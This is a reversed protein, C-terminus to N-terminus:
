DGDDSRGADGDGYAARLAPAVEPPLPAPMEITRYGDLRVVEKGKADVVVVDFSGDTDREAHATLPQAATAEDSLVRVRGVHQPLALLEDRGAQWLGATQFCLEVLRPATVLPADAPDSNAPLDAALRATSGEGNRWASEVVQYAPGHFYFTYVQGADLAADAQALDGTYKEVNPADAETLRVSGRFHTTIVPAEQGPLSREATLACRALLDGGGSPDPGIVASVTLERVGDRFFKVPAAFEVEEVAAVRYGAPAALAAVEAFSEMGMVGPLVATGDIRHDNLFPQRVPDLTVKSTWGSHVSTTIDGIMPGRPTDAVTGVDLGGTADYEQAMMGLTGAVVVEGSFASDTLERRIWAVGAEPPLMEVGAAAMITPISGRTAMGIGGWATWDLALGRTGPTTNRLNSMAKCMLDNAASYDTQGQNGFRGAVSSFVATAKLEQGALAKRLAFWGDCKVDFVLDYERPEKEPLNRSIEVGAAHLLVDIRGSVDLVQSIAAGVGDVDTLDVSYYHATGGAAQVAEIADLAASRREIGAIEREIAVPTAKDGRETMRRALLGKLSNKDSRFAAIDPDKADPTPTLDLLHFTGQSAKALDATIASVISGAAGTVVFVTDSTLPLGGEGVSDDGDREGFPIEVFGVGYRRGGVLGIEVCGPDALTEAILLDAVTATKRSAPLDVAKVLADPREKKYSKTFGTVSGGLVGTAGAADYGHYGGLYTASVLFPSDDWLRRMARYLSKVRRRTAEHWADLDYSALEREDDLGALWYVGTIPAEGRWTELAQDLDETSVGPELVLATAGAKALRKLLAAGVGGEDLMVVVRAGELDVGTATCADLAPRLSPVPIRRPLADVADLDGVVLSTGRVWGAVHNLTPFERLQLNEDRGLAYEGRVAAFVEAQKVTDVGLDAELDLDPDLLETPYGTMEAVIGTVKAM